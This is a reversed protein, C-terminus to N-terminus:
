RAMIMVENSSRGMYRVRVSVAGPKMGNPARVYVVARPSTWRSWIRSWQPTGFWLVEAVQGGIMVQPSIASEDALGTVVLQITDAAAIMEPAAVLNPAAVLTAPTYLEASATSGYFVGIGGYAVGGTMLVRGDNLLTATHGGRSVTMTGTAAFQGNAPDYLEASAVTGSFYCSTAECTDTEGGTSLVNGDPLLTLTHWVRRETMSGTAAFSGSFPDYIEADKSRGWDGGGTFLVRGNLLLTAASELGTAVGTSQYSGTTPDFLQAPRQLNLLVQGNALQVSPPCFDCIANGPNPPGLASFSGTAPDYVEAGAILPYSGAFGGIVLVRGNRLLHAEHGVRAWRTSGVQAFLGTAPDYIEASGVFGGVILVRGDPLLTATHMRRATSMSGTASFTGTAPDYLEATALEGSSYNGAVYTAGGTILVKGNQLLTATHQTRSGVMDGTRAFTGARQAACPSVAVVLSLLLGCSHKSGAFRM